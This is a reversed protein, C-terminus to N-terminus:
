CDCNNTLVQTDPINRRKRVKLNSSRVFDPTKKQYSIDLARYEPVKIHYQEAMKIRKNSCPHITLLFLKTTHIICHKSICEPTTCACMSEYLFIHQASIGCTCLENKNIIAYFASDLPIPRDIQNDCVLQWKPPLNALLIEDQTELVAPPPTFHEYYTFKCISRILSDDPSTQFVAAACSLVHTSATLRLNPCLYDTHLKLCSNPQHQTLDIYEEKSIALHNQKLDLRTYKSEKGDYTDKDLPVNFQISSIYIWQHKNTTLLSYRFKFLSIFEETNTFSVSHTKM